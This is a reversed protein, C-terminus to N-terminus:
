NFLYMSDGLAIHASLVIFAILLAFPLIKPKYKFAAFGVVISLQDAVLRNIVSEEGGFWQPIIGANMIELYHEVIEWSSSILLLLIIPHHINHRRLGVVFAGLIAGTAIHAISWVDFVSRSKHGFLIIDESTLAATLSILLGFFIIYFEPKFSYTNRELAITKSIERIWNKM